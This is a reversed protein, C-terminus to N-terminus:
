VLSVERRLALFLEDARGDTEVKVGPEALVHGILPATIRRLVLGPIRWGRPRRRGETGLIRHFLEGQIRHEKLRRFFADRTKLDRFGNADTAEDKQYLEVALFDYVDASEWDVQDVLAKSPRRFARISSFRM